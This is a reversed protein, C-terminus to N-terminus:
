RRYFAPLFDAPDATEENPKDTYKGSDPCPKSHIGDM